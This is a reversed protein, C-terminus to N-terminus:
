WNVTSLNFLLTESNYNFLVLKDNKIKYVAPNNYKSNEFLLKSEIGKLGIGVLYFSNKTTKIDSKGIIWKPNKTESIGYHKEVDAIPWKYFLKDFEAISKLEIKGNIDKLDTNVLNPFPYLSNYIKGPFVDLSIDDFSLNLDFGSEYM